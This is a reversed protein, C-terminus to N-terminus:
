KSNLLETLVHRPAVQACADSSMAVPRQLITPGHGLRGLRRVDEGAFLPSDDLSVAGRFLDLLEQAPQGVVPLQVPVGESGKALDEAVLGRVTQLRREDSGHDQLLVAVGRKHDAELGFIPHIM